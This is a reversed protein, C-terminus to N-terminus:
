RRTFIVDQNQGAVVTNSEVVGRVVTGAAIISGRKIVAGDLIVSNAGIWVDEEILIGGKSKKFGQKIMPLTLDKFEHNTPALTCNAAIMVNKGIKIGNGSYLVCGSNIYVNEDIKIDGVGGSFKIKVFSDIHVNPATILQSGKSSEEIDAFKSILNPNSISNM